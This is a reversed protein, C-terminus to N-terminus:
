SRLEQPLTLSTTMRDLEDYSANHLYPPLFCFVLSCQCFDNRIYKNSKGWLLRLIPLSSKTNWTLAMDLRSTQEESDASKETEKQKTRRAKKHSKANSQFSPKVKKTEIVYKKALNAGSTKLSNAGKRWDWFIKMGAAKRVIKDLDYPFIPINHTGQPPGGLSFCLSPKKKSADAQQARRAARVLLLVM